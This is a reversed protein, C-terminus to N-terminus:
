RAHAARKRASAAARGLATPTASFLAAAARKGKHSNMRQVLADFEASLADLPARRARQLEAYQEFHMLVFRPQNHRLVAVPEVSAVALVSAVHNKLDSSTVAKLGSQPDVLSLDLSQAM